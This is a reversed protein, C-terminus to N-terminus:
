AAHRVATLVAPAAAPPTWSTPANTAAVVIVGVNTEFGDMEVLM